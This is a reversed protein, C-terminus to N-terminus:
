QHKRYASEPQPLKKNHRKHPRRPIPCEGDRKKKKPCEGHNDGNDPCEPETEEGEDDTRFQVYESSVQNDYSSAKTSGCGCIVATGMTFITLMFLASKKM